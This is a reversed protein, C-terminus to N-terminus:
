NRNPFIEKIIKQMSANHKEDTMNTYNIQQLAYELEVMAMFVNYRTTNSLDISDLEMLVPEFPMTAIMDVDEKTKPPAFRTVMRDLANKVTKGGSDIVM